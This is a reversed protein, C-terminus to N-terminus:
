PTILPHPQGESLRPLTSSNIRGEGKWRAQVLREPQPFSVSVELGEM